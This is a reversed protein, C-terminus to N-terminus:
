GFMVCTTLIAHMYPINKEVVQIVQIYQLLSFTIKKKGGGPFYLTYRYMSLM